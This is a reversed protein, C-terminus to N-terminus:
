FLALLLDGGPEVSIAGLLPEEGVVLSDLFEAYLESFHASHHM